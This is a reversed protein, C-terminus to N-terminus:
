RPVSELAEGLVVPWDFSRAHRLAAARRSGWAPGDGLAREIATALSLADYSVIEAGGEAALSRANPPVDTLLIPLGAALYAKLKGPDAYRTFNDSRPQYPAVAVSADALAAEVVRHDEV